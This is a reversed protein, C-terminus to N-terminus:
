PKYISEAEEFTVYFGRCGYKTPIFQNDLLTNARDVLKRRSMKHLIQNNSLKPLWLKVDAAKASLIGSPVWSDGFKRHTEIFYRRTNLAISDIVIASKVTLTIDSQVIQFDAM